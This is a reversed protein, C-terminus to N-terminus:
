ESLIKNAESPEMPPEFLRDIDGKTQCLRLERARVQNFKRLQSLKFNFEKLIKKKAYRILEPTKTSGIKLFVFANDYNSYLMVCYLFPVFLLSMSPLFLIGVATSYPDMTNLSGMMSWIAYGIIVIGMVPILFSTLKVVDKYEDKTKAFADVLVILTIVPTLVLEGALPLTYTNIVFELFISLKLNDILVKNLIPKNDKATVFDMVMVFASFFFWLCTDKLMELQWIGLRWLLAVILTTYVFMLGFVVLIAPRLFALVARGSTVRIEKHTIAWVAFIALWILTAIERNNLM